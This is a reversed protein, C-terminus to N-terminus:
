SPLDLYQTQCYPGSDFYFASSAQSFLCNEVPIFAVEILSIAVGNM